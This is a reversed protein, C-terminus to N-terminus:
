LIIKDEGNFSKESGDSLEFVLEEREFFTPTYIEGHFNEEPGLYPFVLYSVDEQKEDYVLIVKRPGRKPKVIMKYTKGKIVYTVKYKRNKIPIITSNLYQIINIWLAQSVMYLSIWLITFVGKYNTAVLKNIKRFKKWKVSVTHKVISYGDFYFFAAISVGIGGYTLLNFM